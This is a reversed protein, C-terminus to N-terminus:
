AIELILTKKQKLDRTTHGMISTIESSVNSYTEAESIVQPPKLQFSLKLHYTKKEVVSNTTYNNRNLCTQDFNLSWNANM